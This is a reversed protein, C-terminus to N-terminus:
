HNFLNNLYFDDCFCPLEINPKVQILKKVKEIKNINEYVFKLAKKKNDNTYDILIICDKTTDQKWKIESRRKNTEKVNGNKFTKVKTCYKLFNWGIKNIKYGLNELALAYLILQFSHLTLKSNQYITSTKYDIIDLSNDNNVGIFDVKGNFIFENQPKNKFYNDMKLIVTKEQLFEKYEEKKFNDFYRLMERQYSNKYKLNKKFLEKKLEENLGNNYDSFYFGKQEINKCEKYWINKATSTTIENKYLQEILTHALNGLYTYINDGMRQKDIYVTKYEKLCHNITNLLSFSILNKNDQKRLDILDEEMNNLQELLKM